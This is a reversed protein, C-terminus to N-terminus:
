VVRYAKDQAYIFEAIDEGKISYVTAGESVFTAEGNKLQYEPNDVEESGIVTFTIKGLEKEIDNKTIEATKEEDYYYKKGNWVIADVWEVSVQMDDIEKESQVSCGSLLLIVAILLLAIQKNRM